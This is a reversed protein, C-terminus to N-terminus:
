REVLQGDGNKQGLNLDIGPEPNSVDDIQDLGLYKYDALHTGNSDALYSVRGVAADAGVNYGYTLVRGNPYTMSTLLTPTAPDTSYGYYVAPTSGTM